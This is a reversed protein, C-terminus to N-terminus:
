TKGPNQQLHGYMEDEGEAYTLDDDNVSRVKAKIQGEDCELVGKVELNEM